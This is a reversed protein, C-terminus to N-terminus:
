DFMIVNEQSVQESTEQVSQGVLILSARLLTSEQYCRDQTSLRSEGLSNIVVASTSEQFTYKGGLFSMLISRKVFFSTIYRGRSSLDTDM